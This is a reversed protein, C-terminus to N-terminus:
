ADVKTAKVRETRKIRDRDVDFVLYDKNENRMGSVRNIWDSERGDLLSAMKKLDKASCPLPIIIRM